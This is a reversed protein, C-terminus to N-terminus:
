WNCSQSYLLWFICLLRCTVWCGVYRPQSFCQWFAYFFGFCVPRLESRLVTLTLASIYHWTQLIHFLVSGNQYDESKDDRSLYSL